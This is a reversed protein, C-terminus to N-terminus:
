EEANQHEEGKAMTVSDEYRKHNPSDQLDFM